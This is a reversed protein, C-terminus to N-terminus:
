KVQKRAQEMADSWGRTKGAEMLQTALQIIRAGRDSSPASVDLPQQPRKVPPGGTSLGLVGARRQGLQPACRWLASGGRGCLHRGPLRAAAALPCITEHPIGCYAAKKAKQYCM